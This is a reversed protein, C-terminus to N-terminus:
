NHRFLEICEIEKDYSKLTLIFRSASDRFHIKYIGGFAKNLSTIVLSDGDEDQKAKWKGENERNSYNTTPFICSADNNFTILGSYLRENQNSSHYSRILWARTLMDESQSQCGVILAAVLFINFVNKM